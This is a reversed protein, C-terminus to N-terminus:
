VEGYVAPDGNEDFVERNVPYESSFKVLLTEEGAEDTEVKLDRATVPVNRRLMM